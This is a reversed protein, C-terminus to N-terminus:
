SSRTRAYRVGLQGFYFGAAVYAYWLLSGLVASLVVIAVLLALAFVVEGHWVPKDWDRRQRQMREILRADWPRKEQMDSDYDPQHAKHPRSVTAESRLRSIRFRRFGRTLLPKLLLRRGSDFRHLRSQLGSRLWEAV